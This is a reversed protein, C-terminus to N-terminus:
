DYTAFTFVIGAELLLRKLERQMQKRLKFVHSFLPENLFLIEPEPALAHVMAM